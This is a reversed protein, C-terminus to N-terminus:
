PLAVQPSSPAMAVAPTAQMTPMMQSTVLALSVTAVPAAPASAPQDHALMRRAVIFDDFDCVQTRGPEVIIWGHEATARHRLEYGEPTQEDAAAGHQPQQQQQREAVGDETGTGAEDGTEAHGQQSGAREGAQLAIARTAIVQLHGDDPQVPVTEM